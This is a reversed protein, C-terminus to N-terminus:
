KKGGGIKNRSSRSSLSKLSIVAVGGGMISLGIVVAEDPIEIESGDSDESGDSGESDNSDESDDSDEEPIILLGGYVENPYIDIYIDKITFEIKDLDINTVDAEGLVIYINDIVEPADERPVTLSLDRGSKTFEANKLDSLSSSESLNSLYGYKCNEGLMYKACVVGFIDEGDDIIVAFIFVNSSGSPYSSGEERITISYVTELDDENINFEIIDLNGRKSTYKYELNEIEQILDETKFDELDFDYQFEQLFIVDRGPDIDHKLGVALIPILFLGITFIIVVLIRKKL